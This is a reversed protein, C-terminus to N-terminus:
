FALVAAEEVPAPSASAMEQGASNTESWVTYGYGAAAAFIALAAAWKWPASVPLLARRAPLGRMVRAVFDAPVPIEAPRPLAAAGIEREIREGHARRRCRGCVFLHAAADSPLSEGAALARFVRRCPSM